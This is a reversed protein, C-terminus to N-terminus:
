SRKGRLRKEILRYEELCEPNSLASINRLPKQNLINKVAIEVKKGSRPYLTNSICCFDQETCARPSLSTRLKERIKKELDKTLQALNRLKVFLIFEYDGEFLRDTAVSDYVEELEETQQYIEATGIRIGSPNLTSDSRGHVIFGNNNTQEIADGHRWVTENPYHNFYADRFKEGTPDHAFASPMSVFPRDCILEGTKENSNKEPQSQCERGPGQIEGRHVPILPNGIMFCSNLDTGGSLSNLHVNQKVKQYVWDYHAPQLPSGTSLIMRLSDLNFNDIPQVGAKSLCWHVESQNRVRYSEQDLIEEALRGISPYSTCGDFCIIQSGVGLSSVMWNWM